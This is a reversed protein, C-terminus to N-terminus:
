AYRDEQEIDLLDLWRPCAILISYSRKMTHRLATHALEMGAFDCPMFEELQAGQPIITHMGPIQRYVRGTAQRM